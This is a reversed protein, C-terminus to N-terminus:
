AKMRGGFLNWIKKLGRFVAPSLRAQLAQRLRVLGLGPARVLCFARWVRLRIRLGAGGFPRREPSVIMEFPEMSWLDARGKSIVPITKPLIPHRCDLSEALITKCDLLGM